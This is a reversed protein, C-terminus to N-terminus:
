GGLSGSQKRFEEYFKVYQPLHKKRRELGEYLDEDTPVRRDGFLMGHETPFAVGRTLEFAEAYRTRAQLGWYRAAADLADFSVRSSSEVQTSHQNLAELKIQISEDDLSVFFNPRFDLASPAQYHLLTASNRAASITAACVNRHDQHSDSDGHTYIISPSLAAIEKEIIKVTDSGATVQGDQSGGFVVRAGIIAAAAEAEKIRKSVDGPGNQGDTVVLMVVEHGVAAHRVLTGGCGLEIDDPHAGIALVRYGSM